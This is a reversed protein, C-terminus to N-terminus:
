NNFWHVHTAEQPSPETFVNGKLEKDNAYYYGSGDYENMVGQLVHERWEKLTLKLM